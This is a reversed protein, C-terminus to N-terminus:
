LHKPNTKKHNKNKNKQPKQSNNKLYSKYITARKKKNM